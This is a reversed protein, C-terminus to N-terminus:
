TSYTSVSDLQGDQNTDFPSWDWGPLNDLADLAPWAAKQFKPIVGQHEGAYFEVCIRFFFM